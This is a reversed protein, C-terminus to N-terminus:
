DGTPLLGGGPAAMRFPLSLLERGDNVQVAFHLHPATSWGVSGVAALVQGAAVAEGTRVRASGHAIHAYLGMSGDTHLVRVLNGREKLAADTGGERFQDIVQMVVGERAALVPTGEAAALDIAFWNAADHHSARGGFGQTLTWASGAALPFAYPRHQEPPLPLPTGPRAESALEAIDGGPFRGLHRYEGAELVASSREHPQRPDWVLVQVPGGLRNQVLATREGSPLREAALEISAQQARTAATALTAALAALVAARLSRHNLPM